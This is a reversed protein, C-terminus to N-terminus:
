FVYKFSLASDWFRAKVHRMGIFSFFPKIDFGITMPVELWRYEIGLSGDVGMTFFTKEEFIFQDGAENIITKALDDFKEFGIHGGLGYHVYFRDNFSFEMPEHFLYLATFQLGDNRGSLMIEVAEDETVFKKYTLGSTGGLRIGGSKEYLQQGSVTYLLSISILLLTFRM